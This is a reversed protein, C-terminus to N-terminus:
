SVEGTLLLEIEQATQTSSGGFAQLIIENITGEAGYTKLRSSDFYSTSHLVNEAIIKYDTEDVICLRNGILLDPISQSLASYAQAISDGCVTNSEKIAISLNANKVTYREVYDAPSLGMAVDSEFPSFDAYCMADIGVSQFEQTVMTELARGVLRSAYDEYELIGEDSLRVTFWLSNDGNPYVYATTSNNNYRNGLTSVTFAESYKEQLLTEIKTATDRDISGCGFLTAVLSAM